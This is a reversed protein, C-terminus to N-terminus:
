ASQPHRIRPEAVPHRQRNVRHNVLTAGIQLYKGIPPIRPRRVTFQRGVEFMGDRNGGVPRFDQALEFIDLPSAISTCPVTCSASGLATNLTVSSLPCLTNAWIEPLILICLM